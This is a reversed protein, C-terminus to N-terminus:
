AHSAETTPTTQLDRVRCAFSSRLVRRLTAKRAPDNANEWERILRQRGHEEAVDLAHALRAHAGFRDGLDWERRGRSLWAHFTPEIVGAQEACEALTGGRRRCAAAADIVTQSPGTRDQRM